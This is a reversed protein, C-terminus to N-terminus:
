NRASQRRFAAPSRGAHRTFFRTFYAPDSFGLAYGVEGISLNGYLLSRQAELMARQDRPKAVQDVLTETEALWHAGERCRELDARPAQPIVQARIARIDGPAISTGSSCITGLLTSLHVGL